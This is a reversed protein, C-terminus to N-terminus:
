ETTTPAEKYWRTVNVDLLQNYTNQEMKYVYFNTTKNAQIILRETLPFSYIIIACHTCLLSCLLHALHQMKVENPLSNMEYSKVVVPLLCRLFLIASTENLVPVTKSDLCERKQYRDIDIKLADGGTPVGSRERQGLVEAM